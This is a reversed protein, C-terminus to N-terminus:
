RPGLVGWLDALPLRLGPLVDEGDLADGARLQRAPGGPRYATATRRRPDVVWVLPRGAAVYWHVTRRVEPRTDTPSVIEIALDPPGEPLGAADAAAARAPDRVYGVDPAVVRRPALACPLEPLPENLGRAEGWAGLRRVLRGQVASHRYSAPAVEVLRGDHLELKGAAPEPLRLFERATLLVDPPLPPVPRATM